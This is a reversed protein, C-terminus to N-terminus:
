EDDHQDKGPKRPKAPEAVRHPEAAGHQILRQAVDATFGAIEGPNYVGYRKLLKLPQLEMTNPLAPM